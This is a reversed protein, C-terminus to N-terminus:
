EELNVQRALMALAGPSLTADTKGSLTVRGKKSPHKYQRVEGKQVVMFWGEKEISAIIERITM